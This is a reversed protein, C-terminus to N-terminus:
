TKRRKDSQLYYKNVALGVAIDEATLELKEKIKFEMTALTRLFQTIRYNDIKTYGYVFLEIDNHSYLIKGQACFGCTKACKIKTKGKTCKGKRKDKKCKKTSKIDKCNGTVPTHTFFAKLYQTYIFKYMNNIDQRQAYQSLLKGCQLCSEKCNQLM